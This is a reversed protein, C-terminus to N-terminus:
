DDIRIVRVNVRGDEPPPAPLTTPRAFLGRVAQKLHLFIATLTMVALFALLALLGLIMLPIVFVVFAAILAAKIAWSPQRSYATQFRGLHIRFQNM